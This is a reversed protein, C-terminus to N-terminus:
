VKQRQTREIALYRACNLAFHKVTCPFLTFILHISSVFAEENSTENGLFYFKFVQRTCPPRTRTFISNPIPTTSEEDIVVSLAYWQSNELQLHLHVQRIKSVRNEPFRSGARCFKIREKWSIKSHLIIEPM